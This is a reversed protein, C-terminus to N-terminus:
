TASLQQGNVRQYVHINAYASRLRDRWKRLLKISVIYIKTVDGAIMKSQVTSANAAGSCSSLLMAAGGAALAKGLIERIKGGNKSLVSAAIHAQKLALDVDEGLMDALIIAMEPTVSREGKKMLCVLSRSCGLEKALASDSKCLKSARDVLTKLEQM